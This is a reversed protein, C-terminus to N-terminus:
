RLGAVLCSKLGSAKRGWRAAPKGKSDRLVVNRMRVRLTDETVSVSVTYITEPERCRRRQSVVFPTSSRVRASVPAASSNRPDNLNRATADRACYIRTLPQRAEVRLPRHDCCRDARAHRDLRTATDVRIDCLGHFVPIMGPGHDRSDYQAIGIQPAYVGRRPM